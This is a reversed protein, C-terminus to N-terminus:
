EALANVGPTQYTQIMGDRAERLRYTTKLAQIDREHEEM